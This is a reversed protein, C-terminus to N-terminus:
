LIMDLLLGMPFRIQLWFTFVGLIIAAMILEIIVIVKWSAHEVFKLWLFIYILCSPVLGILFTCLIIAAAGLMVMLENRNYRVTESDRDRAIQLFCAISSVLLVVAIIIPFFGPTPQGKWFGYDKLGVIIFVLSFVITALPIVTRLNIKKKEM